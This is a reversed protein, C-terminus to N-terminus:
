NFFFVSFYKCIFERMQPDLTTIMSNVSNKAKEAVKSLVNSNAVTDKVWTFLSGALAGTDMTPSDPAILVQPGKDSSISATAEDSQDGEPLETPTKIKESAILENSQTAPTM